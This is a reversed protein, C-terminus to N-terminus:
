KRRKRYEKVSDELLQVIDHQDYSTLIRIERVTTIADFDITKFLDALLDIYEQRKLHAKRFYLELEPDLYFENKQRILLWKQTYISSFHDLSFKIYHIINAIFEKYDDIPVGINLLDTFKADRICSLYEMMKTTKIWRLSDMDYKESVGPDFVRILENGSYGLKVLLYTCLIRYSARVNKFALFIKDANCIPRFTLALAFLKFKKNEILRLLTETMDMRYVDPCPELLPVSCPRQEVKEAEATDAKEQIHIKRLRQALELDVKDCDSSALENLIKAKAQSANAMRQYLRDIHLIPYFAKSLFLSLDKRYLISNLRVLEGRPLLHVFHGLWRKCVMRIKHAEQTRNNSAEKLVCIEIEKPLCDFLNYTKIMFNVFWLM